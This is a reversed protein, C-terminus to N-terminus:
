RIDSFSTAAGDVPVLCEGQERVSDPRTRVAWQRGSLFSPTSHVPAPHVSFVHAGRYDDVAQGAGAPPSDRDVPLDGPEGVVVAVEDLEQPPRSEFVGPIEEVVRVPKLPAAPPRVPVFRRSSLGASSTHAGGFRTALRRLAAYADARNEVPGSGSLAHVCPDVTRQACLTPGDRDAREEWGAFQKRVFTLLRPRDDRAREGTERACAVAYGTLKLQRALARVDAVM